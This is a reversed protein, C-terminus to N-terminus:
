HICGFAAAVVAACARSGLAPFGSDPELWHAHVIYFTHAVPTEAPAFVVPQLAMVFQTLFAPELSRLFHIRHIIKGFCLQMVEVQLSGSMLRYTDFASQEQDVHLRQRFYIRLRRRMEDPMDVTTMFQNLLDLTKIHKSRVRHATSSAVTLANRKCSVM